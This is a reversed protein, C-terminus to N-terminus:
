QVTGYDITRMVPWDGGEHTWLMREWGDVKLAEYHVGVRRAPWGYPGVAFEFLYVTCSVATYEVRSVAVIADDITMVARLPVGDPAEIPRLVRQEITVFHGPGMAPISVLIGHGLVSYM